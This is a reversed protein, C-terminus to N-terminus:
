RDINDEKLSQQAQRRNIIHWPLDQQTVKLALEKLNVSSIKKRKGNDNYHYTWRFGKKFASNFEQSVRYFGTKNYKNSLTTSIKDRCQLSRKKNSWYRANNKSLKQRYEQSNFVSDPNSWLSKNIDSLKKKTEKTHHKNYFPHKAGQISPRPKRMKQKSEESHRWGQVGDGGETFNFKPRLQRIYQIELANLKDQTSVNFVLIQYTYRNPNNQLVQNIKQYSYNSPYLHDNHRKNNDIDSDKGIYM